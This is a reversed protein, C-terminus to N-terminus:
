RTSCVNRVLVHLGRRVARIDVPQKKFPRFPVRIGLENSLAVALYLLPHQTVRLGLNQECAKRDDPELWTSLNLHDMADRPSRDGGAQGSRRQRYTMIM